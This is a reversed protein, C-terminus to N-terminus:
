RHHPPNSKQHNREGTSRRADNWGLLPTSLMLFLASRRTPM